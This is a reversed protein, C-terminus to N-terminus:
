PSTATAGMAPGALDLGPMDRGLLDLGLLDHAHRRGPENCVVEDAAAVVLTTLDSGPFPDHHDAVADVIAHPVRQDLLWEAALLAHDTGFDDKEGALQHRHTVWGTGALVYLSPHEALLLLEGIDHLLAAASADDPDAGVASAIFRAQRAVDAAHFWSETIRDDDAGATTAATVAGLLISRPTAQARTITHQPM